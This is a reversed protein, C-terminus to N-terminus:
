WPSSTSGLAESSFLSLVPLRWRWRLHRQELQSRILRSEGGPVREGITALAQDVERAIEQRASASMARDVIDLMERDLIALAGEVEEATGQLTAIRQRFGGIEPRSSPIAEALAALRASVDLPLADRDIGVIGLAQVEDWARQVASDFYKLSRVGSSGRKEPTRQFIDRLVREVLDLPIGEGKWRRATEWDAPSLLLPSGRLHIFLKELRRFYDLESQEKRAGMENESQSM